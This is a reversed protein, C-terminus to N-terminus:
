QVVPLHSSIEEILKEPTLPWGDFSSVGVFRESYDPFALKLLQCMQLDRNQEVVLLKHHQEVFMKVNDPFPFTLLRMYDPAAAPGLIDMLEEIAWHTTGFSILGVPHGDAKIVKANPLSTRLTEFKRTLRDMNRVYAEPSETYQGYEDHGSGRALTAAYPNETGPLTRYTVGDKDVDLYRGWKKLEEVDSARLVKGRDMKEKPYQFEETLWMNMGLDLDSMIFVPTQFHDAIDFAMNTMEFCETPSAPFFMPHKTDGHSLNAVIGIDSQSTRTPLGTSPGVRQVDVIVAPVEVFYGLGVFESMLSIGPGSTATMARAGAWSAGLVMGVAALEDEAQVFCYKNKGSEKDVRHKAFVTNIADGVSSAPTIPYWSFMTCGGYLAGWAVAENGEILFREKVVSNQKLVYNTDIPNDRIWGRGLLIATSNLEFVEPKKSFQKVIVEDLIKGDVGLIECLAGVYIMNRLLQRLRANKFKTAALSTMPIGLLKLRNEEVSPVTVADSDYIVIGGDKVKKFDEVATVANLLVAIDVVEKSCRYGKPSLRIRYWSPLGQINSPFINKPAIPVGVSYFTKALINNASQSGTGNVTAISINFDDQKEAVKQALEM